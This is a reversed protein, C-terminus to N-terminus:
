YVCFAASSYELIVGTAVTHAVSGTPIRSISNTHYHTLHWKSALTYKTGNKKKRQCVNQRSLHM